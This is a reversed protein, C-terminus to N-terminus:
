SVDVLISLVANCAGTGGGDTTVLLAQSTSVSNGSTVNGAFVAHDGSGPTCSISLDTAVGGGLAVGASVVEATLVNPATTFNDECVVAVRTVVGALPFPITVYSSATSLNAFPVTLVVLNNNNLSALPDLYSGSGAGDATYVTGAGAAAIGKPEHLSSGTLNKHEITM